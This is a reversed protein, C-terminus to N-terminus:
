RRAITCVAVATMPNGGIAFRVAITTTAPTPSSPEPSPASRTTSPRRRWPPHDAPSSTVSHYGTTPSMRSAVSRSARARLARRKVTWRGAPPGSGGPTSTYSNQHASRERKGAASRDNTAAKRPSNRSMGAMARAARRPPSAIPRDNTGGTAFPGWSVLTPMRLRSAAARRRPITPQSHATGIM